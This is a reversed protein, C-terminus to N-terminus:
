EAPSIEAASLTRFWVIEHPLALVTSESVFLNPNQVPLAPERALGRAAAFSDSVPAYRLFLLVNEDSGLTSSGLTRHLFIGFREEIAVFAGPTDLAPEPATVADASCGLLGAGLGVLALGVLSRKRARRM